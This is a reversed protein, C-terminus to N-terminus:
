KSKKGSSQGSNSTRYFAAPRDGACCRLALLQPVVVLAVNVCLFLSLTHTPVPKWAPEPYPAPVHLAAGIYSFQGQALGGAAIAAWDPLWSCGSPKILAMMAGVFFPAFYLAYVAMQLVPYSTPDSIYPEVDSLWWRCFSIPSGFAVLARFTCFVTAFALFVVFLLDLPRGWISGLPRTSKVRRVFEAAHQDRQNLLRLGFILPFLAYPVNLLYSPKISQGFKGIANGPLFVIISNLISGVWYLGTFRYSENKLMYYTMLLYMLYHATGDWYNIFLGHGSALYVEGEGLYFKAIDIFGDITFALFLDVVATFAFVTFVYFFFEKRAPIHRLLLVYTLPCIGLCIIVGAYFVNYSNEM